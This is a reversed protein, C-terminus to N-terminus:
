NYFRPISSIKVFKTSFDHRQLFAKIKNIFSLKREKHGRRFKQREVCMLM